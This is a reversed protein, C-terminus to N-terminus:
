IHCGMIEVSRSCRLVEPMLASGVVIEAVLHNMRVEILLNVRQSLQIVVLRSLVGLHGKVETVNRLRTPHITVQVIRELLVMPVVLSVIVPVGITLTFGQTM